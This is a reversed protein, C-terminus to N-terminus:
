EKMTLRTMTSRGSERREPTMEICRVAGRVTRASHHHEVMMLLMGRAKTGSGVQMAKLIQGRVEEIGDGRMGRTTETTGPRSTLVMVSGTGTRTRTKTKTRTGKRRGDTTHKTKPTIANAFTIELRATVTATMTTTDATDRAVARKRTIATRKQTETESVTTAIVSVSVNVSVNPSALMEPLNRASGARRRDAMRRHKSSASM